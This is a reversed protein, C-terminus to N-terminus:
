RIDSLTQTFTDSLTDSVRGKRPGLPLGNFDSVKKIGSSISVLYIGENGSGGAGLWTWPDDALAIYFYGSFIKTPQGPATVRVLEAAGNAPGIALLPAGENDQGILHLNAGSLWITEQGTALDIRVLLNPSNDDQYTAVWATRDRVLWSFGRRDSVKAITGTTLDLRWLKLSDPGCGRDCEPALYLFDGSLRVVTSLFPPNSSTYVVKDVASSIDVVHVRIGSPGPEPGPNPSAVFVGEVYAYRTGDPSVQTWSVPLWRRAAWSFTIRGRIPNGFGFLYPKASTRWLHTVPDLAMASQPDAEFDGGPFHVFGGALQIDGTANSDASMVPLDGTLPSDSPTAATPPSAKAASASPTPSVAAGPNAGAGCATILALATVALRRM